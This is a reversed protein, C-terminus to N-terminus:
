ACAKRQREALLHADAPKRAIVLLNKGVPAGCCREIGRTVPVMFRDYVRALAANFSRARGLVNIVYWPVVGAMDLYTSKAIELGSSRCLSELQPKKYRRIHGAMRDLASYLWPLAPVFIIVTGGPALSAYIQDVLEQDREVHELVNVLVVTDFRAPASHFTGHIVTLRGCRLLSTYRSRCAHTLTAYLSPAPEFVRLSRRPSSTVHHQLLLESFTGIGGGVEAIREGLFPQSEDYIWRHYKVLVRLTALESALTQESNRLSPTGIAVPLDPREGQRVLLSRDADHAVELDDV